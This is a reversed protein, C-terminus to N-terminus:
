KGIVNIPVDISKPPLCVRNDCAQFHLTAKVAHSGATAVVRAQIILEGTYVSLKLSPDAPLTYTVGPPYTAADLRVGSGDPFSLTTPILEEESPTHSNIHLGQRILFHLAIATPKGAAVSAQAPYMYKVEDTTALVRDEAASKLVQAHAAFAVFAVWAVFAIAVAKMPTKMRAM